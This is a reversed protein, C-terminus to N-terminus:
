VMWSYVLVLRLTADLFMREVFYSGRPNKATRRRLMRLAQIIPILLRKM